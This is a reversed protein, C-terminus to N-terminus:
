RKDRLDHIEVGHHVLLPQGLCGELRAMVGPDRDVLYLYKAGRAVRDAIDACGLHIDGFENFGRQGSLYLAQCVSGDPVTIVLDEPRVGVERALPEIDLLGFLSWYQTYYWHDLEACHYLPLIAEKDLPSPGHARMQHNNAAYVAHYVLLSAFAAKAAKSRFVAPDFRAMLWLSAVILVMPLVLPAIFYYDHNDLTIFWLLVYLVVGLFLCTLLLTLARPMRPMRYVCYAALGLLVLYAPTDFLQFVLIDKGFEWARERQEVTLDWIAWTGQYSYEAGHLQNYRVTYAVWLGAACLVLLIGIAVNRSRVRSFGPWAFTKPFLLAFLLCCMLALPFMAATIKLLVALTFAVVGWILNWRGGEGLYRSLPLTGILVLDLAPVDTLFGIAFYVVAPVTFFFLSVVCAWFGDRLINQATRFFAWTGVAHLVLMVLRYAFESPGTVKWIMGIIYYILPFEGASKGTTLGDAILSQVGPRFLNWEGAYYERTLSLCNTQRWIHHPLPRLHLVRGYEYIACLLLFGLLWWVSWPVRRVLALFSRM